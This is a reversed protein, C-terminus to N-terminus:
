KRQEITLIGNDWMIPDFDLVKKGAYWPQEGLYDIGEHETTACSSMILSSIILFLIFLFKM